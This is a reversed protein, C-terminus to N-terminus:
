IELNAPGDDYGEGEGAAANAPAGVHVLVSVLNCMEINLSAICYSTGYTFKAIFSIKVNNLLNVNVASLTCEIDMIM